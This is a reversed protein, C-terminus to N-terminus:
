FKVVKYFAKQERSANAVSLLYIGEALGTMDIELSSADDQVKYTRVIQGTSSLLELVTNPAVDTGLRVVTTNTVPNPSVNVIVQDSDIRVSVVDSYTYDGNYDVQKLRYYTEGPVAETDMFNYYNNTNSTGFGEKQGLFDFRAGDLSREIEFHSNNIEAATIWSLEVQKGITTAKFDVLEVPLPANPCLPCNNIAGPGSSLTISNTGTGNSVTVSWGGLGGNFWLNLYYTGSTTEPIVTGVTIPTVTGTLSNVIYIDGGAGSFNSISTITWTEGPNGTIQIYDHNFYNLSGPPIYNLPNGCFCPDNINAIFPNTITITGTTTSSCGNANTVTLNVNFTGSNNYTYTCTQTTCDIIGDGNFDWAYSGGPGASSATFTVTTGTFGSGPNGGISSNPLDNVTITSINNSEASFAPNGSGITRACRVFYTTTYLPGPQYSASNSNAIATYGSGGPQANANTTFMWLYEITGAQGGSAPSESTILAPVTGACVTQNGGINGGNTPNQAIMAFSFAFVSLFLLFPKRIQNSILNPVIQKM